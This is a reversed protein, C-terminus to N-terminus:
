HYENKYNQLAKALKEKGNPVVTKAYEKTSKESAESIMSGPMEPEECFQPGDPLVMLIKANKTTDSLFMINGDVVYELPVRPNCTSIALSPEALVLNKLLDTEVFGPCVANIRVNCIDPLQQCSRVFGVLAHKTANYANFFPLCYLGALSATCVISGGGRKAMHLLAVKAGKIVGITNINFIKEELDDDLPSFLTDCNSIIGANLVAMDVGGFESEAHQFLAKNDTYKTVDTLIFSAVKSGANKNFEDVTAQGEQELIDGIVVKAGGKILKDAVAKGIGRSGGTIVAVKGDFRTVTTSSLTAEAM